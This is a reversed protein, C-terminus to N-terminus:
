EVQTLNIEEVRAVLALPVAKPTHDVARFIRMAINDASSTTHAACGAAACTRPTLPLPIPLM